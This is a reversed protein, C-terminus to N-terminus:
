AVENQKKKVELNLRDIVALSPAAKNLTYFHLDKAGLKILQECLQSVVDLGFARISALDDGFGILRKKMWRPIEAGCRESFRALQSHNTIPMIGPTIPIDVGLKATEELLCEFADASYFYQTIAENAGADVKQKFYSLDSQMCGSLPHCEPYVAVYIYFYDGSHERIFRVLDAAYNFDGGGIGYGSPLDGRLVVLRSIGQQKYEDLLQSIQSKDTGVCSIHPALTLSTHERVAMVTKKTNDQTSGGAGFTVSIYDPSVVKLEDAVFLLKQLGEATKPPFFEFSVSTM